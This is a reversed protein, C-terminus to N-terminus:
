YLLKVIVSVDGSTGTINLKLDSLGATPISYIGPVTISVISELKSMDIATVASYEATQEVRGALEVSCTGEIQIFVEDITIEGNGPMTVGPEALNINKEGDTTIEFRQVYEARMQEEEENESRKM